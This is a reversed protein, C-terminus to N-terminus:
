DAVWAPLFGDAAIMEAEGSELDLLWISPGEAATSESYRQHLLYRGDPSWAPPGHHTTLDDTLARAETGDVRMLWLQRGIGTGAPRRGFALWEGDPSLAPSNDDVGLEPSILRRDAADPRAEFLLTATLYDHSHSEHDDGEEGHLVVLHLDSILVGRDDTLWVPPMGTRSRILHQENSDLAALVVGENAPSVYAIWRGDSSFSAGYAAESGAILPSTEGTATDLWWLHAQGAVSGSQDRREYVLRQGDPSWNLESCSAAPCALLLREEGNKVDILRIESGGDLKTLTYAIKQLDPSVRFYTVEGATDAESGTLQQPLDDGNALRFLQTRGRDDPSLFAVAPLDRGVLGCGTALFIHM